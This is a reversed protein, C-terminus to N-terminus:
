LLRFNRMFATTLVNSANVSMQKITQALGKANDQTTLPLVNEKIWEEAESKITKKTSKMVQKGNYRFKVYYIKSEVGNKMRKFPEMGLRV